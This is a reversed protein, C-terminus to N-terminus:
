DGTASTVQQRTSVKISKTASGCRQLLEYLHAYSKGGVETPTEGGPYKRRGTM